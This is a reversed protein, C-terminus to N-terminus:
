SFINLLTGLMADATKIVKQSTKLGSVGINFANSIM